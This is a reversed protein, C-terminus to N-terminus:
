EKKKGLIFASCIAGIMLVSVAMLIYFRKGRPAPGKKTETAGEDQTKKEQDPHEVKENSDIQKVEEEKKDEVKPINDQVPNEEKVDSEEIKSEVKEKIEDEVPTVNKSDDELHEEQHTKDEEQIDKAVTEELLRSQSSFVFLAFMLVTILKSNRM